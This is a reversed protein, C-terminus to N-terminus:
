RSPGATSATSGRNPGSATWSSGYANRTVEIDMVGLHRREDNAISAALLIAGMCTGWVALGTDIRARIAAGLGGEALFKGVATSEGGPLILGDLGELDRPVLVRRAAIGGGGAEREAADLRALAALHPEVGGQLALVGISLACTATRGSPRAASIELEITAAAPTM